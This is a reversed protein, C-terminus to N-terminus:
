YLKTVDAYNYWTTKLVGGSQVWDAFQPYASLISTVEQPYKFEGTVEIAWPYNDVTQYYKSGVISGDDVTGLISLDALATPKEKPLHIEIGREIYAANRFIFPNFPAKNKLDEYKTGDIFNIVVQKTVPSYYEKTKVTNVFLTGKMNTLLQKADDYLIIVTDSNKSEVGNSENKIVDNLINQGTVGAIKSRDMDLVVAFGSTYSASSGAARLTYDITIKNLKKYLEEVKTDIVVGNKYTTTTRIKRKGETKYRVNIVQDNFDYDGKLPWMDEYVFTNVSNSSPYYDVIDIEREDIVSDIKSGTTGTNIYIMMDNYDYDTYRNRADMDEMGIIGITEIEKTEPNQREYNYMVTHQIGDGNLASTTYFRGMRPSWLQDVNATSTAGFNYWADSLIVIGIKTGKAFKGIAVTDGAKLKNTGIDFNPFIIKATRKVYDITPKSGDTPYVYYAITNLYGAGDHVVTVTVEKDPDNVVAVIDKSLDDRVYIGSETKLKVGELFKANLTNKLNQDITQYTMGNPVGYNNWSAVYNLGNTAYRTTKTVVVEDIGNGKEYDYAIKGDKVAVKASQLTIYKSQIYVEKIDTNLRLEGYYNGNEDFQITKIEEGAETQPMGKWITVMENPMKSGTLEVKVDATTRFTTQTPVKLDEMSKGEDKEGTGCGALMVATLLSVLMLKVKM